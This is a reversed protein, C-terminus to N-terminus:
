KKKKKATDDDAEKQAKAAETQTVMGYQRARQLIAAKDQKNKIFDLNDLQTQYQELVAPRNKKMWENVRNICEQDVPEAIPASNGVGPVCLLWANRGSAIYGKSVPISPTHPYDEGAADARLHDRTSYDRNVIESDQLLRAKM